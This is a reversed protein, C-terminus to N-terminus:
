KWDYKAFTAAALANIAVRRFGKYGIM